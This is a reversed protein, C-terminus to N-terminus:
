FSASTSAVSLHRTAQNSALASPCALGPICCSRDCARHLNSACVQVVVVVVFYYYHYYYYYYYDVFGDFDVFIIVIIILLLLLLLL